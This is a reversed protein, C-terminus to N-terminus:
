GGARAALEHDGRRHAVEAILQFYRRFFRDETWRREYVKRAIEGEEVTISEDTWLTILIDALEDDSGFTWGGGEEVLEPLPGLDRVVVPTGTAMAEVAVGGFTEYGSSPVVVAKAARCLALVTPYPLPGLFHLNPIETSAESLYDALSGAGVVLLPVDGIREAVAPLRDVGKIPELRGAYLFFSPPTDSPLRPLNELQQDTPGPLGLVRIPTHPFAARHLDATFRSPALLLDLSRVASELLSGSRWPQPPRGHYVTCRWCTRKTCVERRYRFLVHTPCLLWHEHTTYLKIGDGLRLAGAAGILSPNHYHIVDFGEVLKELRSRYGVPGGALYTAAVKWSEDVASIVEISPDHEFGSATPIRGSLLRFAAEAYVVRVRHGRHSLGNALRHVHVADGGFSHPPYFTTVLCFSLEAM